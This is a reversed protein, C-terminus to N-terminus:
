SRVVPTTSWMIPTRGYRGRSFVSEWILEMKPWKLSKFCPLLKILVPMEGGCGERSAVPLATAAFMHLPGRDIGPDGSIPLLTLYKGRWPQPSYMPKVLTSVLVVCDKTACKLYSLTDLLNIREQHTPIFVFSAQFVIAPQGRYGSPLTYCVMALICRSHQLNPAM